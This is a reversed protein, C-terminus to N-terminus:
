LAAAGKKRRDEPPLEDAWDHGPLPVRIPVPKGEKWYKVTIPHKKERLFSELAKVDLADEETAIVPYVEEPIADSLEEKVNKPIWVIREWGGDGQLFAPVRMARVSTGKFGHNQVGGSMLGAIKSFTIGLPTQGMYRRVCLGIGDVQPIYFAVGEFCGCNTTTYKITSHLHFIPHRHSSREWAADDVGSYRGALPDIVEGKPVEFIYGGPDVAHVAKCTYFSLVGCYPIVAPTIICAHNPAIMKCISCGYFTDVDEDGIAAHRALLAEHKPKVEEAVIKEILEKGGVEPTGIVFKQEVKEVIPCMSMASARMIQGLKEFSIRPAIEKSIRMWATDGVGLGGCGETNLWGLFFGRTAFETHDENLESGWVKAHFIFPLSTEPPLENIEPGILEIRGDVIEEPDSVVEVFPYFSKYGHKPGGLELYWEGKRVEGIYRPGLGIDELGEYLKDIDTDLQYIRGKPVPTKYWSKVETSM